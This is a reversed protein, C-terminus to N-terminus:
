RHGAAGCTHVVRCASIPPHALAHPACARPTRRAARPVYARVPEWDLQNQSADLARLSATQALDNWGESIRNGSVNLVQLNPLEKLPPLMTLRNDSVDLRTLCHLRLHMGLGSALSNRRVCLTRLATFRNLEAVSQLENDSLNIEQLVTDKLQMLLSLSRLRFHEHAFDLKVPYRMQTFPTSFHEPLLTTTPHLPMLVPGEDLEVYLDLAGM